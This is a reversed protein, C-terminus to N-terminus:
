LDFTARPILRWRSIHIMAPPNVDALLRSLDLQFDAECYWLGFCLAASGEIEVVREKDFGDVRDSTFRAGHTLMPPM